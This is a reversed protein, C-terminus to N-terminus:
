SRQLYEVLRKSSCFTMLAEYAGLRTNCPNCLLGRVCRGCSHRSTCCNHDHDIAFAGQGAGKAKGLYLPKSCLECARHTLWRRLLEIPANHRRAARIISHNPEYCDSCCPFSSQRAVRCTKECIVCQALRLSPRHSHDECYRVGQVHRRTNTCGFAHCHEKHWSCWKNGSGDARIENCNIVWCIAISSGDRKANRQVSKLNRCRNCRCGYRYATSSTHLPFSCEILDDTSDFLTLKDTM